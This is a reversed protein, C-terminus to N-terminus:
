LVARLTSIEERAARRADAVAPPITAGTEALRVAYWDTDKLLALLDAERARANEAPSPLPLPEVQDKHGEAWACIEHYSYSGRANELVLAGNPARLIRDCFEFPNFEPKPEVAPTEQNEKM